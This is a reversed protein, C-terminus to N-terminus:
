QVYCCQLRSYKFLYFNIVKSYDVYMRVLNRHFSLTLSLFVIRRILEVTSWWKYEDAFSEKLIKEVSFTWSRQTSIYSLSLVILANYVANIKTISVNQM